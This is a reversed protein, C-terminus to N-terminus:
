RREQGAVARRLAARDVKGAGNRPLDDVVVFRQPVAYDPVWDRLAARASAEDFGREPREVVCAVVLENLVPDPVGIVAVGAVDAVRSLAEEIQASHVKEGGRNIVDASRGKVVLLDDADISGLDGTRLWGDHFAAAGAAEDRWYGAMRMPGTVEIEGTESAPLPRGAPDVVRHRVGAVPRGVSDPRTRVEEPGLIHTVSTFETLGYVNFLRMHPWAHVLEDIWAVPMPAGGYALVRCREFVVDRREHLMLMRVISPVAILYTAPREELADLAATVGFRPVLDIRGGVLLMHTLQDVFGTNHFLPVLVTTSDTSATQFREVFAAASRVLGGHTIVAGRPRGTTGSTFSIVAPSDPQPAVPHPATPVRPLPGDGIQDLARLTAGPPLVVSGLRELSSRDCLVVTPECVQLQRGLEDAGLRYNLPVAIAGYRLAALFCVVWEVSSTGLLAVRSGPKVGLAALRAAVEDVETLLQRYTLARPGQSLAPFDPRLDAWRDLASPLVTNLVDFKDLARYTM